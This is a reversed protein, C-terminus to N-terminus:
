VDDGRLIQLGLQLTEADLGSMEGWVSFQEEISQTENLKCNSSEIEVPREIYKVSPIRPFANIADQPGNLVLRTYSPHEVEFNKTTTCDVEITRHRPFKTPIWNLELTETDIECIYKEQDTEGFSHSFPTGVYVINSEESRKHYHGSVVIPFEEFDEITLGEESIRGNGYDFSKIDFHGIVPIPCKINRLHTRLVETDKIYPFAMCKRTGLVVEMPEDVVTVNPLLKLAELSHERSHLNFLDHNGVLVIWKMPSDSLRKLWFNLCRGRIVEKTDLLDGSLIGQKNGLSEALTITQDVKELNDPKAHCDGVMTAKPM